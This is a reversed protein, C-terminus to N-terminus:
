LLRTGSSIVVSATYRFTYSCFGHVQQALMRVVHDVVAQCVTSLSAAPQEELHRGILRHPSPLPLTDFMPLPHPLPLPSPLPLLLLLPSFLTLPLPLPLSRLLTM